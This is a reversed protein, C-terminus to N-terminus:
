YVKNYYENQGIKRTTELILIWSLGTSQTEKEEGGTWPDVGSDRSAQLPSMISKTSKTM